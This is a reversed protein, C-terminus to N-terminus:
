QVIMMIANDGTGRDGTIAINRSHITNQNESKEINELIHNVKELQSSFLYNKNEELNEKESFEKKIVKKYKEWNINTM